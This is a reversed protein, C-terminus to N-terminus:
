PIQKEMLIPGGQDAIAAFFPQGNFRHEQYSRRVREVFGHKRFVHQSTRNTAETIATRYKRVAGHALCADVLGHAVGRGVFHSAVGLLFLHLSEGPHVTRGARYDADLQGLIDFIPDFKPSLQGMGEPPASTADETLLAGVMEGSAASRAVITLGEIEAKPCFLRVFSEFEAPSLGVAVAPPDRHAFVEGLLRAMEEADSARYTSFNIM